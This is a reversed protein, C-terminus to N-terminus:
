KSKRASLRASCQLASRCGLTPHVISLSCCAKSPMCRVRVRGAETLADLSSLSRLPDYKKVVFSFVLCFASANDRTVYHTNGPPQNKGSHRENRATDIKM